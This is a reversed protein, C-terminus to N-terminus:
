YTPLIYIDTTELCEDGYETGVFDAPPNATLELVGYLVTEGTVLECYVPSGSDAQAHSPCDMTYAILVFM